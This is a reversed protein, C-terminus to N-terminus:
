GVRISASVIAGERVVYYGAFTRYTGDSQRASLHIHVTDGDEATVTVAEHDTTALGDVFDDYNSDLNRGGLAWAQAYDRRNIADFYAYVVAASASVAAVTSRPTSITPPSTTPVASTRAGLAEVVTVTAASPMTSPGSRGGSLTLVLVVSVATAVAALLRVPASAFPTRPTHNEPM